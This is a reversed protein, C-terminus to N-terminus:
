DEVKLDVGRVEPALRQSLITEERRTGSRGLSPKRRVFVGSPRKKPKKKLCTVGKGGYGGREFSKRGRVVAPGGPGDEGGKCSMWPTTVTFPIHPGTWGYGGWRKKLVDIRDLGRGEIHFKAGLAKAPV